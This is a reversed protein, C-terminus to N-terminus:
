EHAPLERLLLFPAVLAAEIPVQEGSRAMGADLREHAIEIPQISGYGGQVLEIAVRRAELPDDGVVGAAADERPLSLRSVAANRADHDDIEGGFDAVTVPDLDRFAAAPALDQVAVGRDVPAAVDAVRSRDRRGGAIGSRLEVQHNRRERSQVQDRLVLM